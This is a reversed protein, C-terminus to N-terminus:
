VSKCAYRAMHKFFLVKSDGSEIDKQVSAVHVVVEPEVEPYFQSRPYVYRCCNFSYCDFVKLLEGIVIVVHAVCQSM